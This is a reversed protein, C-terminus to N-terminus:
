FKCVQESSFPVRSHFPDTVIRTLTWRQEGSLSKYLNVNYCLAEWSARTYLVWRGICSVNFPTPEIGPDSLDGPPPFPLGSWYKRRSFGMSLPAQQSHDMPDCLTLCLQLSKACMIVFSFLGHYVRLVIPIQNAEKPSKFVYRPRFVYM